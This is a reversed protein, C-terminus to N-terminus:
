MTFLFSDAVRDFIAEQGQKTELVYVMEGRMFVAARTSNEEGAPYGGVRIVDAEEGGIRRSSETVNGARFETRLEELSREASVNTGEKQAVLSILCDGTGGETRVCVTTIGNASSQSVVWNEPYAFSFSLETNAFTKYSTSPVTPTGETGPNILTGPPTTGPTSPRVVARSASDSAQQIAPISDFVGHDPTQSWWYLYAYAGIAVVVLVGLMIKTRKTIM